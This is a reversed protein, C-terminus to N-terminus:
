RLDMKEMGYYMVTGSRLINMKLKKFIHSCITGQWKEAKARNEQIRVMVKCRIAEHMSIIPLFRSDM